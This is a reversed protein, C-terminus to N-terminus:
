LAGGYRPTGWYIKVGDGTALAIDVLGDGDFDGVCDWSAESALPVEWAPRVEGTELEVEGSSLKDGTTWVARTLALDIFAWSALDPIEIGLTEWRGFDGDDNFGFAPTREGEGSFGRVITLLDQDGDGDADVLSFRNPRGVSEGPAEFSAGPGFYLPASAYARYEAEGEAGGTSLRRVTAPGFDPGSPREAEFTLLDQAGDNSAEVRAASVLRDWENGARILGERHSRQAREGLFGWGDLGLESTWLSRISGSGVRGALAVRLSVPDDWATELTWTHPWLGAPAEIPAVMFAGGLSRLRAIGVDANSADAPSLRLLALLEAPRGGGSGRDPVRAAMGILQADRLVSVFGDQPNSGWRVALSSAFPGAGPDALQVVIDAKADSDFDGALASRPPAPLPITDEVFTGLSGRLVRLEGVAPGAFPLVIDPWGNGDIDTIVPAGTFEPLPRVRGDDKALQLGRRGVADLEGDLDLDAVASHTLEEYEEEFDVATVVNPGKSARNDPPGDAETSSHFSPCIPDRAETWSENWGYSVFLQLGHALVILDLEGVGDVQAFSVWPYIAGATSEVVVTRTRVDGAVDCIIKVPGSYDDERAGGAVYVVPAVLPPSGAPQPAELVPTPGVAVAEPWSVAPAGNAIEREEGDILVTLHSQYQLLVVDDALAQVQHAGPREAVDTVVHFPSFTGDGENRLPVAGSATTDRLGLVLDVLGDDDIDNLSPVSADRELSWTSTERAGDFTTVHLSATRNEPTLEQESEVWLLEAKGDGDLDAAEVWVVPRAGGLSGPEFAFSQTRCVGDLGCNAGEPCTDPADACSVQCEFPGGPPICHDEGDCTEEFSPEVIGNGCVGLERESLDACSAASLILACCATRLSSM